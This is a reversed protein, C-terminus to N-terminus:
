QRFFIALLVTMWATLITGLLWRFQGDMRGTLEARYQHFESRVSKVESGLGSIESKVQSGLGSIESKIESRLQGMESRLQGLGTEVGGLRKDIQEYAGELHAIRVDLTDTM